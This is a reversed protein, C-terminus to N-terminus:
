GGPTPQRDGWRWRWEGDTKRRSVILLGAIAAVDIVVATLGWASGDAVAPLVMSVMVVVVVTGITLAWGQWTVPTAGYGFRRPKFWYDTMARAEIV